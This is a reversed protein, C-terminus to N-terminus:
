NKLKKMNQFNEFIGCMETKSKPSSKQPLKTMVKKECGGDNCLVLIKNKM